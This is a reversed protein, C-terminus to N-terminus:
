GAGSREIEGGSEWREAGGERHQGGAGALWFTRSSVRVIWTWWRPGFALRRTSSTSKCALSTGIVKPSVFSPEIAMRMRWLTRASLPFPLSVLASPFTFWPLPNLLSLF